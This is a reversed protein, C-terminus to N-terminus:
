SQGEGQVPDSAASLCRQRTLSPGAALTVASGLIDARAGGFVHTTRGDEGFHYVFLASPSEAVMHQERPFCLVDMGHDWRWALGRGLSDAPDNRVLHVPQMKAMEAWDGWKNVFWTAFEIVPRLRFQPYPTPEFELRNIAEHWRYKLRPATM